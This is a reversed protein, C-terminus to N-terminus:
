FYKNIHYKTVIFFQQSKIIYELIITDKVICRIVTIIIIKFIPRPGYMYWEDFPPVVSCTNAVANETEYRNVGEEVKEEWLLSSAILFCTVLFSIVKLCTRWVWFIYILFLSILLSFLFPLPRDDLTYMLYHIRMFKGLKIVIRIYQVPDLM